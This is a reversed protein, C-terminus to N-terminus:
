IPFEWTVFNQVLKPAELAINIEASILPLKHMLDKTQM